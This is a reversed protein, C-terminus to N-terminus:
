GARDDSHTPARLEDLDFDPIESLDPKTNREIKALTKGIKEISEAIEHSGKVRWSGLRGDAVTTTYSLRERKRGNPKSAWSVSVAFREEAIERASVGVIIVHQNPPLFSVTHEDLGRRGGKLPNPDLLAKIDFATGTGSNRVILHSAVWGGVESPEFGVTVFPRNTDNALKRTYVALVITAFVLAVTSLATVWASADLNTSLELWERM